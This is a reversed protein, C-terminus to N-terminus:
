HHRVVLVLVIGGGVVGLFEVNLTLLLRELLDLVVSM